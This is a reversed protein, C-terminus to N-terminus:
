AHVDPWSARRAFLLAAVLYLVAGVILAVSFGWEFAVLLIATAGMVSAAGNVAFGWDVLERVRLTAKPFPMGMFFGLPAVLVVAAAIRPGLTMAGLVSVLQRFCLVDLLLWAAIALFPLRDGFRKSALSGLGSSVLLTTIITAFTYASAGLLLTYKQILVVEVAMFAVGITFFYLWPVAGLRADKQVAPILNLPLVLVTLVGLITLLIVRSMPYGFVEMSHLFKRRGTLEEREGRLNRWLGLQGVFPRDDTTPAINVTATKQVKSWGERMIRPVLERELENPAPYLLHMEEPPMRTIDGFTFRRMEDTLPEKAMILVACRERPMDYVAVHRSPDAIGEARLAEVVSAVLRPMYFQHQMVLVGNPSLARWYDRYADVTFLYNEAMAFSGSTLASYTNSAVSYIVDVNGDLRRVYARADETALKVRPDAYIRGSYDDMGVVKMPDPYVIGALEPDDPNKERMKAVEAELWAREPSPVIYGHLDDDTLMMNMQPNLEVAHVEKAGAHLAMYVDRGGGSGLSLFRCAPYRQILWSVDIGFRPGSEGALRKWDGDFQMTTTNALNDIVFTRSDGFGYMKIKSVADWHKYIVPGREERAMELTPGIRVAFFVAAVALAAPVLRTWRPAVLLAALILPISGLFVAAQTGAVNMLVIAAVVGAAAGLLDAMYIKPMEESGSRFISALAMGGFAFASSLLLVAIVFKGIMPWSGFLSDFEIGLRFLIPPGALAAAACVSLVIWLAADSALPRFLRVALAGVGLGMM